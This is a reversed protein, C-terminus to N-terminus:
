KYFAKGSVRLDIYQTPMQKSNAKLYQLITFYTGVQYNVDDLLNYKVIFGQGGSQVDIEYPSVPLIMGSIAINKKKYQYIISQIFTITQSSIFNKGLYASSNSADTLNILKTSNMDTLSSFKKIVVGKDSLLYLGTSNKLTLVPISAKLILQLNHGTIPIIITASDLEPYDSKFRAELSNTDITFKSKNLFSSNLLSDITQQYQSRTHLFNIASSNNDIIIQPNNNLTTIYFITGIIVLFSIITPSQRLFSVNRSLKGKGSVNVIRDNTQRDSNKIQSHYVFKRGKSSTLDVKRKTEKSKSKSM